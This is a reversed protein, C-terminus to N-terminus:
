RLDLRRALDALDMRTQTPLGEKTAKERLRKLYTKVTEIRVDMERAVLKAPLGTAYWRLVDLERVSFLARLRRVEALRDTVVEAVALQGDAARRVVRVLEEVTGGASAAGRAGADLAALVAGPPDDDDVLVVVTRGDAVGARVHHAAGPTRGVVLVDAAEPVRTLVTRLGLALVPRADLVTVRSPPPGGGDEADRPTLQQDCRQM